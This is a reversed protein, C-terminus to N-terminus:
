KKNTNSPQKQQAHSRKIVIPRQYYTYPYFPQGYMTSGWHGSHTLNVDVKEINKWLHVNSAKIIPFLYEHEGIKGQEPASITGLATISRGVKYIVPDLLGNYYVRFRGLTEDKPKPRASSTLPFNVIELMSNDANNTVKAIVGGWRASNGINAEQEAKASEFPILRTTDAVSLKEPINSCAGLTTILMISILINFKM